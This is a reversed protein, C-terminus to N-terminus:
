KALYHRLIREYPTAVAVAVLSPVTLPGKRTTRDKGSSSSSSTTKPTILPEEDDSETSEEDSEENDDCGENICKSKRLFIRRFFRRNLWCATRKGTNGIRFRNANAGIAM